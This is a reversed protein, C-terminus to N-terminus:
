GAPVVHVIRYGRVKLARLFAPLMAATATKTDHFLIIGHGVADLRSLVLQLERAPTMRNWDSAWLDAGFVVIGRQALRDLLAPTAAFGPFRFFPTAPAPGEGKDLAADVAAIGRDIETEAAARSRRNLLAHSWTHSAVTHGEAQERRALAPAAAANKGILFFTARV